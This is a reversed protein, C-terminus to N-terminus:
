VSSVANVQILSLKILEKILKKIKSEIKHYEPYMATFRFILDELVESKCNILHLIIDSSIGDVHLIRNKNIQNILLIRDGLMEYDFDDCIFITKMKQGNRMFFM